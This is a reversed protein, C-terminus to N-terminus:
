NVTKKIYKKFDKEENYDKIEARLEALLHESTDFLSVRDHMPTWHAYCIEKNKQSAQKMNVFQLEDNDYVLLNEHIKRFLGRDTKVVLIRRREDKSYFLCLVEENERINLAVYKYKKIIESLTIQPIIRIESKIKCNIKIKRKYILIFIVGLILFGVFLSIMIIGMTVGLHYSSENEPHMRMGHFSAGIILFLVSLLFSFIYCLKLRKM